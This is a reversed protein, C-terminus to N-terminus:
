STTRRRTGTRRRLADHSVVEVAARARNAGIRTHQPPKGAVIGGELACTAMMALIADDDIAEFFDDVCGIAALKELVLTGEFDM